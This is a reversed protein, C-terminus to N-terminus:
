GAPRTRAAGNANGLPVEAGDEPVSVHEHVDEAHLRERLDARAELCHNIAELHVAVVRAWPAHRAVAVVDEATMTIPDGTAFRAGGANVVVADPRHADLAERVPECWVTDGAVYLSPEGDAALVFGSVPGLADAQAGHGHRGDTRAVRIGEWDATDGVPHVATFGRERLTAADPPQCLLPVDPPLLRVATDDLHDVHLHTVLVGDIRRVVVEPPEPLEVLPNRRDDASNPVPPRARAPDLQPDILLRRGALHVLLTAHRILRLHM